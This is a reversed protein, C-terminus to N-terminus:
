LNKLEVEVKIEIETEVVVAREAASRVSGFVATEAVAVL